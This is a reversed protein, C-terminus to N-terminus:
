KCFSALIMGFLTTIVRAETFVYYIGFLAGLHLHVYYLVIPWNMEQSVRATVSSDKASDM